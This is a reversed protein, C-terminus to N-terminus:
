AVAMIFMLWRQWAHGLIFRMILHPLRYVGVTVRM